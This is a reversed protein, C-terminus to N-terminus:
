ASFLREKAEQLIDKPPKVTDALAKIGGAKQVDPMQLINQNELAETGEVAFPAVIARITESAAPPFGRLWEEHRYTFAHVREQRRRPVLGYAIEALVDYTDFDMMD